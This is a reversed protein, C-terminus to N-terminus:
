ICMREYESHKKEIHNVKVLLKGHNKVIESTKM